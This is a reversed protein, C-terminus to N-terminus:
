VPTGSANRVSYGFTEVVERYPQLADSIWGIQEPTLMEIQTANMNRLGQQGYDKVKVEADARIGALIPLAEEIEALKPDPDETFDEYRITLDSIEALSDLVKMRSGVLDGLARYYGQDRGLNLDLDVDWQAAVVEPSYRKAWSACVAYPDRILRFVKAPMDGFISLLKNMRVINPPSKEVVVLPPQKRTMARRMWVTRLMDAAFPHDPDWRKGAECLEPILWQGEGHGTLQVANPASSLVNAIATSGSNPLTALFLWTVGDITKHMSRGHVLLTTRNRLRTVNDFVGRAPGQRIKAIASRLSSM